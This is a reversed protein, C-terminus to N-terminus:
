PFAYFGPGKFGGRSVDKFRGQGKFRGQFTKFRRRSVDSSVDRLYPQEGRQPLESSGLSPYPKTSEKPLLGINRFDHGEL